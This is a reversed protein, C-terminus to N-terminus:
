GHTNPFKRRGSEISQEPLPTRVELVGDTYSAKIGEEKIGEPLAISRTFAGYRFESRFSDKTKTSKRRRVNPVFTCRVGRRSAVAVLFSGQAAEPPPGACPRPSIMVPFVVSVVCRIALFPSDM